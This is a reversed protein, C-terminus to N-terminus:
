CEIIDALSHKIEEYCHMCINHFCSTMAFPYNQESFLRLCQNCKFEEEFDM